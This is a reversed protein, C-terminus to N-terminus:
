TMRPWSVTAGESRGTDPNIPRLALFVLPIFGGCSCRGVRGSLMVRILFIRCHGGSHVEKRAMKKKKENQIKEKKRKRYTELSLCSFVFCDTQLSCLVSTHSLVILALWLTNICSHSAPSFVTFRFLNAILQRLCFNLYALSKNQVWVKKIARLKFHKLVCM